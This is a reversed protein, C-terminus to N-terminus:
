HLASAGATAFSVVNNAVMDYDKLLISVKTSFAGKKQEKFEYGWGNQICLQRLENDKALFGHPFKLHNKGERTLIYRNDQIEIHAYGDKQTVAVSIVGGTPASCIPFGFINLFVLRTFLPDAVVTVDEPCTVQIQINHNQIYDTFHSQTQELMQRVNLTEKAINSCFGNSLEESLGAAVQLLSKQAELSGTSHM